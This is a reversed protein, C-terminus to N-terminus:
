RTVRELQVPRTHTELAVIAIGPAKDLAGLNRRRVIQEVHIVVVEGVQPCELRYTTLREVRQFRVDCLDEEREEVSLM